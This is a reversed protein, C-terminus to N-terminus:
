LHTEFKNPDPEFGLLSFSKRRLAKKMSSQAEKLLTEPIIDERSFRSSFGISLICEDEELSERLYRYLASLEMQTETFSYFPLIGYFRNQNEDDQYVYTSNGLFERIAQEYITRIPRKSQKPFRLRLIFLSLEYAQQNAYHTEQDLRNEFTDEIIQQSPQEPVGSTVDEKSATERVLRFFRGVPPVISGDEVDRPSSYNFHTDSGQIIRQKNGSPYMSSTSGQDVSPFNEPQKEFVEKPTKPPAIQNEVRDPEIPVQIEKFYAIEEPTLGITSENSEPPLITVPDMFPSQESIREENSSRAPATLTNTDITTSVRYRDYTLYPEDPPIDYLFRDADTINLPETPLIMREYVESRRLLFSFSVFMFLIIPFLTRFLQFIETSIVQDRKIILASGVIFSFVVGTLILIAVFSWVRKIKQQM